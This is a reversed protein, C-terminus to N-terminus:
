QDLVYERQEVATAALWLMVAAIVALGVLSTAVSPVERFLQLLAGVTSDEPM